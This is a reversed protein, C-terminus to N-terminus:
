FSELAAQAADILAPDFLYLRMTETEVIQEDPLSELYTNLTSLPFYREDWFDPETALMAANLEKLRPEVEELPLNLLEVIPNSILVYGKAGLAYQYGSRTILIKQDDGVEEAVEMLLGYRDRFGRDLLIDEDEMVDRSYRYFTNTYGTQNLGKVMGFLCLAACLWAPITKMWPKQPLRKAKALWQPWHEIVAALLACIMVNCLFFWQLTYRPLKVFSGSFSYLPSDLVGSMPALTLVTVLACFALLSLTEVGKSHNTVIVGVPGDAASSRVEKFTRRMRIRSVIWGLIVCVAAIVAAYLGWTGVPSAYGMIIADLDEFFNLHTTTEELKYEMDMYLDYWPADTFSTMLRWPSMEGWKLFCWINGSFALLTGAAGALAIGMSRLLARGAGKIATMHADLVRWVVWAAVIFPLVVFCVVHASMVTFCVAFSLILKGVYAKGNGKENIGSFALVALLLALIRWIDRPAGAVSYYLQPILNFLVAGLLVCVKKERCFHLLLAGYACAAYFILLGIGTFVPKDNPYGYEGGTHFLGYSMYLELSPFHSHGRFHGITEEKELLVSLDRNECYHLGLALYEGADGGNVANMSSMFRVCVPAILIVICLAFCLAALAPKDFRLCHKLFAFGKLLLERVRRLNAIILSLVVVASLLPLMGIYAWNPLDAWALSMILVWLYQVFPTSAVGTLFCALRSRKSFWGKFAFMCGLAFMQAMCSLLYINRWGNGLDLWTM